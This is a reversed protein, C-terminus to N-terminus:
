LSERSPRGRRPRNDEDLPISAATIGNIQLQGDVVSMAFPPAVYQGDVLLIGQAQALLGELEEASPGRPEQFRPRDRRAEPPQAALPGALVAVLLGSLVFGLTGAFRHTRATRCM